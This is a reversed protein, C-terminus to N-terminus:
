APGWNKMHDDDPEVTTITDDQFWKDDAKIKSVFLPHNKEMHLIANRILEEPTNGSIEDECPGGLHSCIM